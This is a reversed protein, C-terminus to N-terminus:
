SYLWNFFPRILNTFWEIMPPLIELHIFLLTLIFLVWIYVFPSRILRYRIEAQAEKKTQGNPQDSVKQYLIWICFPPTVIMSLILFKIM